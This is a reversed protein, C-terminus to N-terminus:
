APATFGVGKTVFLRSEKEREQVMKRETHKKVRACVCVCLTRACSYERAHVTWGQGGLFERIVAFFAAGLRDRFDTPLPSPVHVSSMISEPM